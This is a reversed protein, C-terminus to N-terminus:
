DSSHVGHGGKKSRSVNSRPLSIKPWMFAGSDSDSAVFFGGRRETQRDRLIFRTKDAAGLSRRTAHTYGVLQKPLHSWVQTNLKEKNFLLATPIISYNLYKDSYISPDKTTDDM